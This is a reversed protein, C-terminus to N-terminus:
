NQRVMQVPVISMGTGYSLESILLRSHYHHALLATTGRLSTAAFIEGVPLLCARGRKKRERVGELHRLFDSFITAM